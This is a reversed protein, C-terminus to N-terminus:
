CNFIRHGPFLPNGWGIKLLPNLVASKQQSSKMWTKTYNKLTESLVQVQLHFHFTLLTMSTSTQSKLDLRVQM